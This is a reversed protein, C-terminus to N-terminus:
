FKFSVKESKEMIALDVYTYIQPRPIRIPKLNLCEDM